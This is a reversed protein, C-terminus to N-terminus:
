GTGRDAKRKREVLCQQAWFYASALDDFVRVGNGPEGENVQCTDDKKQWKQVAGCFPCPNEFGEIEVNPIATPFLEADRNTLYREVIGAAKMCRNHVTAMEKEDSKGYFLGVAKSEESRITLDHIYPNKCQQCVGTAYLHFATSITKSRTTITYGM